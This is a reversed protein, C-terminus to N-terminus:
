LLRELFDSILEDGSEAIKKSNSDFVEFKPIGEELGLDLREAYFPLLESSLVDVYLVRYKSKIADMITREKDSEAFLTILKLCVICTKPSIYGIIVNSADIAEQAEEPTKAFDITSYPYKIFEGDKNSWEIFLNPKANNNTSVVQLSGDKREHSFMFNPALYRSDEEIKIRLNIFSIEHQESLQKLASLKYSYELIDKATANSM